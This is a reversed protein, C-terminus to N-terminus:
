SEGTITGELFRSLIGKSSVIGISHSESPLTTEFPSRLKSKQSFRFNQKHPNDKLWFYAEHSFVIRNPDIEGDDLMKLMQNSFGMRKTM